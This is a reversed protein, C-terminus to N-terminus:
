EMFLFELNLDCSVYLIIGLDRSLFLSVATKKIKLASRSKRTLPRGNLGPSVADIQMENEPVVPLTELTRNPRYSVNWRSEDVRRALGGLVREM